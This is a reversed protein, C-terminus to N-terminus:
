IGVKELQAQLKKEATNAAVKAAANTLVNSSSLVIAPEEYVWTGVLNRTTAQKKSSFISTLGSALDSGTNGSGLVNGLISGLDTQATAGQTFLAMLCIVAMKLINTKM